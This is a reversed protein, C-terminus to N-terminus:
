FRINLSAGIYPAPDTEIEAIDDGSADLVEFEQYVLAGAEFTLTLGPTAQPTFEFGGGLLVARDRVIGGPLAGRDDLIYERREFEGTLFISLQDTAQYTLDLGLGQTELNLRDTIDWSIFLYPIIFPDDEVRTVVGIGAGIALDDNLQHIAGGIGGGRLGEGFDADGEWSSGIFGRAFARWRDDFVYFAGATFDLAYADNFPDDEGPVLPANDFDYSAIEGFIGLTLRLQESYRYGLDINLAHAERAYNGGGDEFDASFRATPRYNFSISYPSRRPQDLRPQEPQPLGGPPIFEPSNTTNTQAHASTTTAQLCLTILPAVFRKPTM